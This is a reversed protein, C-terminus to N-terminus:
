EKFIKILLNEKEKRLLALTNKYEELSHADKDLMLIAQEVSYSSIKESITRYEPITKYVYALKADLEQRSVLQKEEYTKMIANYQSNTLAM